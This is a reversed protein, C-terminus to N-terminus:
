KNHEQINDSDVWQTSPNMPFGGSDLGKRRPIKKMLPSNIMRRKFGKIARRKRRLSVGNRQNTNRSARRVNLVSQQTYSLDDQELILNSADPKNVMKQSASLNSPPSSVELVSLPVSHDGM